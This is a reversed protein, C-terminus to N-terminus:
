APPHGSPGDPAIVRRFAKPMGAVRGGAYDYFLLGTRALAVLAGTDRDRVRYLLDCGRSGAEGAGIEISLAQGYFAQARYSVALDTLIVGLGEVNAEEMGFARFLRARAEHLISVLADHGLHNGYNIDGIRIAEEHTFIVRDPFEIQIRTM